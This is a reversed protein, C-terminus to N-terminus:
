AAKVGTKINDLCRNYCNIFRARTAEESVPEDFLDLADKNVPPLGWHEGKSHIMHHSEVALACQDVLEIVQQVVPPPRGIGCSTEIARQLREEIVTIADILEPMYKLPSIIDGTYAEHADHLLMWLSMLDGAGFMQRAYDVCLLSHDAVSWAVRSHGNYRAQKSLAIAIDDICISAPDPESLDVLWGKHTEVFHDM